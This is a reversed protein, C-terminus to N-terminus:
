NCRFVYSKWYQKGNEVRNIVKEFLFIQSILRKKKFIGDSKDMFGAVTGRM